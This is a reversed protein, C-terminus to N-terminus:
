ITQANIKDYDEVVEFFNLTSLKFLNEKKSVFYGVIVGLVSVGILYKAGFIILANM